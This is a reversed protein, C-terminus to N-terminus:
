DVVCHERDVSAKTDREQLRLLYERCLDLDIVLLRGHVTLSGGVVSGASNWFCPALGFVVGFCTPKGFGGQVSTM